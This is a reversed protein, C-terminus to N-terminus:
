VVSESAGRKRLQVQKTLFWRLIFVVSPRSWSQSLHALPLLFLVWLGSEWGVVLTEKEDVVVLRLLRGYAETENEWDCSDLLGSNWVVEERQWGREAAIKNKLDGLLSFSPSFVWM